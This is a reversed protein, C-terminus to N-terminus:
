LRFTTPEFGVGAVVAISSVPKRRSTAPKNYTPDIMGAPNGVVDAHARTGEIYITIKDILSKLTLATADGGRDRICM